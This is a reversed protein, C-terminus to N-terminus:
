DRVLYHYAILTYKHKIDVKMYAYRDNENLSFMPTRVWGAECNKFKKELALIGKHSTLIHAKPEHSLVIKHAKIPADISEMIDVLSKKLNEIKM